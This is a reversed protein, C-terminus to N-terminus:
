RVAIWQIPFKNTYAIDHKANKVTRHVVALLLV